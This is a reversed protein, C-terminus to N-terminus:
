ADRQNPLSALDKVRDTAAGYLRSYESEGLQRRVKKLERLVYNIQNVEAAIGIDREFRSVMDGNQQSDAATEVPPAQADLARQQDTPEAPQEPEDVIEGTVTDIAAANDPLSPPEHAVSIQPPESDKYRIRLVPILFKRVPQGRERRERHELTLVGSPMRGGFEKAMEVAAPIEQAAFYSQTELRFVGIDPIGPLMVILRTHPKCERTGNAECVCDGEFRESEERETVTIGDCRRMWGSRGWLEYWQSLPPISPPPLVVNIERAQVTVEHEPKGNNDWPRAEGGYLATVAEIVNSDPSTFRFRTLKAPYTKGSAAERKEGSRIRGLERPRVNLTKIPM